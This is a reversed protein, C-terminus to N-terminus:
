ERAPELTVLAELVKQRRVKRILVRLGDASVIDGGKFPKAHYRKLWDTFPLDGTTDQGLSAWGTVQIFRSLMAGGGVVWQNGSPTIHRPMRDFEDQIDGVLEELIDELTILGHVNDQSDRVLALHVHEQMMRTFAAGISIDPSVNLM